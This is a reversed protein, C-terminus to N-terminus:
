HVPVLALYDLNLGIGDINAMRITHDGKDLGFALPEGKADVVTLHDWESALSGFGGTGAFTQGPRKRSDVSIARRADDNASYRIVLHYQGAPTRIRWSLAHGKDDWHSIAKGVVGRKDTRVRVKGGAEEVFSEAEAIIGNKLPNGAVRVEVQGRLTLGKGTLVARVSGKRPSNGPATVSVLHVARKGPALDVDFSPRSLVLGDADLRLDGKVGTTLPASVVVRCVSKADDTEMATLNLNPAAGELCASTMPVQTYGMATMAVDLRYIPDQM